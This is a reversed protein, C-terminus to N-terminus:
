FCFAHQCQIYSLLDPKIEIEDRKGPGAAPLFKALLNNNTATNTEPFHHWTHNTQNQNKPKTFRLNVSSKGKGM